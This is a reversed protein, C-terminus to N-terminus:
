LFRMWKPGGLANFGAVGKLHPEVVLMSAGVPRRTRITCDYSEGSELEHPLYVWDASREQSWPDNRWHVQVMVGGRGRRTALWRAPGHNVLRIELDRAVGEPWPPESGEVELDASISRWTLTTPPPYTPREYDLPELGRLQFCSEVVAEAARAPDNETEVFRRAMQSMDELRARDELLRGVQDAIADVEGAGLPVKAAVSDPLEAGSAYDSVVAPRGLALVRLLSASTEGATPYRLNVCLDCAAIAAEFDAYDLFGTKHVRDTVGASRAVFDFDLVPSAEGAILLHTHELGPKALAEIVKDTRKIPTQFGFSGILPVRDGLGLRQRFDSGAAQDPLPPLPIGMPVLHVSLDPDEEQLRELAWRSHVLVGKQSRLLSRNATLGFMAAQGLEGWRRAKAALQGVWGHDAELRQLYPELEARGLTSEILLHHLIVDHLVLVGPREIALSVVGEHYRNNGVQYLALRDDRGTQRWDVPRWRRVLEEEMPQDSLRIVRLDCLPELFPLLDCSYDAIGSRVPPLPSVYDIAIAKAM